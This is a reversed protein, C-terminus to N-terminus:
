RSNVRSGGSLVYQINFVWNWHVLQVVCASYFLAPPFLQSCYCSLNFLSLSICCIDSNPSCLCAVYLPQQFDKAVLLFTEKQESTLLLTGEGGKTKWRVQRIPASLLDCGVVVSLVSLTCSLQAAAPTCLYFSATPPFTKESSPHPPM